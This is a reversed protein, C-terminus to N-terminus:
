TSGGGPRDGGRGGGRGRQGGRQRQQMRERLTALEDEGIFGDGDVDFVEFRSEMPGTAESRAIRGDGDKDMRALMDGAGGGRNGGRDGGGRRWRNQAMGAYRDRELSVTYVQEVPKCWGDKKSCAFYRVTVRIEEGQPWSTIDLLFERPDNDTQAEVRPGAGGDPTIEVGEPLTMSWSVPDVLNNWHVDHVPDLHFGLYMRGSGDQMVSPEVEARLKVYHPEDSKAPETKLGQMTGSVEVRPVVTGTNRYPREFRPVGISEPTSITDTPGFVKALEDRVQSGEAWGSVFVIRGDGDVIYASNPSGGLATSIDNDMGDCIFPVKNKLQEQAAKVQALREELTFPQIWGGNEPHALSKYLYVFAVNAGASRYDHAVAEIDRYSILFKPCTLCGTVIVLKGDEPVLEALEAKSGDPEVGVLDTFGPVTSGVKVRGGLPDQGQNRGQGRSQGQRPRDLSGPREMDRGRRGDRDQGQATAEIPILLVPVALAAVSLMMRVRIM